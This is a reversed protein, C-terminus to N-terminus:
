ELLQRSDKSIERVFLRVQVSVKLARKSSHKLESSLNESKLEYNYLSYSEHQGTLVVTTDILLSNLDHGVGSIFM